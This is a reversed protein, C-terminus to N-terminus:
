SARRRDNYDRIHHRTIKTDLFESLQNAILRYSKTGRKEAELEKRRDLVNNLWAIAQPNLEIARLGVLEGDEAFKGPNPLTKEDSKTTM